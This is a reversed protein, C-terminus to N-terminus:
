KSEAPIPPLGSVKEAVELCAGILDSVLRNDVDLVGEYETRNRM